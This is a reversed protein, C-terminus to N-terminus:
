GFCTLTNACGCSILVGGSEVILDFAGVKPGQLTRLCEGNYIKWLKIEGNAYGTSVIDNQFWSM